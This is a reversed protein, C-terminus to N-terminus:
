KLPQMSGVYNLYIRSIGKILRRLNLILKGYDDEIGTDSCRWCNENQNTTDDLGSTPLSRGAPRMRGALLKM